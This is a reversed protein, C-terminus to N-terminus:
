IYSVEFQHADDHEVGYVAIGVNMDTDKGGSSPGSRGAHIQGDRARESRGAHGRGPGALCRRAFMKVQKVRCHCSFAPEHM